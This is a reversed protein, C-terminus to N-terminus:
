NELNQLMQIRDGHKLDDRESADLICIHMGDYWVIVYKSDPLLKLEDGKLELFIGHDKELVTELAGAFILASSLWDEPTDEYNEDRKVYSM